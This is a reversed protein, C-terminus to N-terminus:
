LVSRHYFSKFCIEAKLRWEFLKCLFCSFVKCSSLPENETEIIREEKWSYFPESSKQGMNFEGHQEKRWSGSGEM